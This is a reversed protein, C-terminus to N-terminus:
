LMKLHPFNTVDKNRGQISVLHATSRVIRLIESLNNPNVLSNRRPPCVPYIGYIVPVRPAPVKNRDINSDTGCTGTM